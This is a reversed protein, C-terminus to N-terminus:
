EQASCCRVDKKHGEVWARTTLAWRSRPLPKQASVGAEHPSRHPNSAIAFWGAARHHWRRLQPARQRVLSTVARRSRGRQRSPHPVLLRASTPGAEASPFAVTARVNSASPLPTGCGAARARGAASVGLACAPASTRVRHQNARGGPTRPRSRFADTGRGRCPGAWRCFCSGIVARFSASQIGSLAQLAAVEQSRHRQAATWAMEM